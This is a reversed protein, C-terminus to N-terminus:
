SYKLLSSITLYWLYPILFALQCAVTFAIMGILRLFNRLIQAPTKGRVLPTERKRYSNKRWFRVTRLLLNAQTMGICTNGFAYVAFVCKAWIPAEIVLGSIGMVAQYAHALIFLSLLGMLLGSYLLRGPLGTSRYMALALPQTCNKGAFPLRNISRFLWTM